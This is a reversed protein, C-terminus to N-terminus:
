LMNLYGSTFKELSTWNQQRGRASIRKTSIAQTKNAAEIQFSDQLMIVM